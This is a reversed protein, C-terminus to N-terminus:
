LIYIDRLKASCPSYTIFCLFGFSRFTMQIFFIMCAGKRLGDDSKEFNAKTILRLGCALAGSATVGGIFSQM